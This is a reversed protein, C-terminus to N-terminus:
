SSNRYFHARHLDLVWSEKNKDEVGGINEGARFFEDLWKPVVEEIQVM